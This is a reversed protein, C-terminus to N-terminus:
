GFREPALLSLDISPKGGSLLEGVLEGTVPGLSLGMMAHGTAAIVNPWRQLRGLYPMGDPTCPRLGRWPQIGTFDETRFEPFYRPVSEIIGQVRVPNIREDLGAIEMTGGFRLSGGMPTVAIRAETFISCLAPLQRPKPLTLSYGKGAQMPLTLGLDRAMGPSWSGGALVYEDARHEGQLTKVGTVRGGSTSWGTVPTNFHLAAGRERVSRTLGAVFRAPDLHCDKPFYVAGAVDYRVGPDLRAVAESSMVEAPIGLARAEEAMHAEAELSQATKCFMLLGRETFGFDGEPRRAMAAFLARSRLSLDRILPASRAVHAATASRFFKWAWSFLAADLRPKIYFPSKPNWMWKLGLAVAGPAALPIFHSPVVMGANGLSCSDHNEPGRELLTVSHGRSLAENAICLGIVGGGLILVQKSKAM